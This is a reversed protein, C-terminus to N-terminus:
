SMCTKFDKYVKPLIMLRRTWMMELSNQLCVAGWVYLIVASIITHLLTYLVDIQGSTTPPSRIHKTGVGTRKHRIIRGLNICLIAYLGYSDKWFFPLPEPNLWRRGRWGRHSRPPRQAELLNPPLEGSHAPLAPHQAARELHPGRRPVAAALLQCGGEGAPEPAWRQASLTGASQGFCLWVNFNSTFFYVCSHVWCLIPCFRVMQLEMYFLSTRMKWSTLRRWCLPLRFPYVM